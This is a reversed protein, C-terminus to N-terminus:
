IATSFCNEPKNWKSIMGFDSFLRESSNGLVKKLTFENTGVQHALDNLSRDANLNNVIYDRVAYIKEEDKKALSSVASSAHFLQELQLLLLESVKAELYIRKFIGKRDCSMIDNLLRYM